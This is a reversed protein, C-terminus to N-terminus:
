REVDGGRRRRAEDKWGGSEYHVAVDGADTITTWVRSDGSDDRRPPWSAVPREAKAKAAPSATPSGYRATLRKVTADYLAKSDAPGNFVVIAKALGGPAFMAVVVAQNGDVVGSFVQDGDEDHQTFALGRGMLQQSVQAPPTGWRVGFTYPEPAAPASPREASADLSASQHRLRSVLGATVGVAVVLLLAISIAAWPLREWSSGADPGAPTPTSGDLMSGCFRCKVAADQITEACFPCTKM